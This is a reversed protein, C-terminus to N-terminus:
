AYANGFLAVFNVWFHSCTKTYSGTCCTDFNALFVAFAFEVETRTEGTSCSSSSTFLVFVTAECLGLTFATGEFAGLVDLWAFFGTVVFIIVTVTFDITLTKTLITVGTLTSLTNARTYGCEFFTIGFGSGFCDLDTRVGTFFLAVAPFTVVSATTVLLTLFTNTDTTGIEGVTAAFTYIGFGVEGVTSLTTDFATCVLLTDCTFTNTGIALDITGCCGAAFGFFAVDLKGTAIVTAFASVFTRRTLNTACSGTFCVTCCAEVLTFFCTFIDTCVELIVGLMAPFTAIGTRWTDSTGVATAFDDADLSLRKTCAFADIKGAISGVTTTTVFFACATLNARSTATTGRTQCSLCEASIDADNEM